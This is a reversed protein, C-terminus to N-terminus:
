FVSLFKEFRNRLASLLMFIRSLLVTKSQLDFSFGFLIM